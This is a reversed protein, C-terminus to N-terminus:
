NPFRSPRPGEGSFQCRAMNLKMALSTYYGIIGTIDVVGKKGFRQEARNRSATLGMM